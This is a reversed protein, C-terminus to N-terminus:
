RFSLSIPNLNTLKRCFSLGFSRSGTKFGRKGKLGEDKSVVGLIEKM